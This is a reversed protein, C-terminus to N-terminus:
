GTARRNTSRLTSNNQCAASNYHRLESFPNMRDSRPIAPSVTNGATSLRSEVRLLEEGEKIVLGGGRSFLARTPVCKVRDVRRAPPQPGSQAPLAWTSLRM